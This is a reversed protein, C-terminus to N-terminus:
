YLDIFVLVYYMSLSYYSWSSLNIYSTSVNSTSFLVPSDLLISPSLSPPISLYSSPSVPPPSIPLSAPPFSKYKPIEINKNVLESNMGWCFSSKAQSMAEEEGEEQKNSALLDTFSTMYQPASFHHNSNAAPTNLSGGSFAM